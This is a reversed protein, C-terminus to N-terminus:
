AGTAATVRRHPAGGGKEKTKIKATATERGCAMTKPRCQREVRRGGSGGADGNAAAPPQMVGCRWPRGPRSQATGSCSLWYRCRGITMPGIQVSPGTSRRHVAETTGTWPPGAGKHRQGTPSAQRRRGEGKIVDALDM